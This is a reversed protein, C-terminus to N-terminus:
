SASHDGQLRLMDAASRGQIQRRRQDQRTRRGVAVGQPDGADRGRDADVGGGCGIIDRRVSGSHGPIGPLQITEPQRCLKM